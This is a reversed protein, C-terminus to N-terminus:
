GLVKGRYVTYREINSLQALSERKVLPVKGNEVAQQLKAAKTDLEKNHELGAVLVLAVGVFIKLFVM